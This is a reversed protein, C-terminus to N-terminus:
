TVFNIEFIVFYLDIGKFEKHYIKELIKTVLVM